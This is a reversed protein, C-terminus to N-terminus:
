NFGLSPVAFMSAGDSTFTLIDTKGPTASLTPVGADGWDYASGFTLLRTGAGDQTVRLMYTAGDKMNTPNDLTRDGELTVKAVQQTNLNWSINGADALEATGFYQQATYAGVRALALDLVQAWTTYGEDIKLLSALVKGYAIDSLLPPRADRSELPEGM